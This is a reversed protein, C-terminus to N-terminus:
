KHQPLPPIIVPSFSLFSSLFFLHFTCAVTMFLRYIALRSSVGIIDKPPTRIYTIFAASKWRGLTQILSDSLGVQAAATAGGIRFSHGSYHTTDVGAQALAVRVHHVLLQRTLPTGDQFHILPGAGSPRIAMYALVASVPCLISDNTRGLHLYAGVGFPDTKSQRLHVTLVHPNEHSDVSIDSVALTPEPTKQPSM